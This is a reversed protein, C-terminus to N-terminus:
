YTVQFTPLKVIVFCGSTITLIASYGTPENAKVLLSRAKQNRCLIFCLVFRFDIKILIVRLQLKINESINNLVQQELPFFKSLVFRLAPPGPLSSPRTELHFVYIKRPNALQVCPLGATQVVPRALPSCM